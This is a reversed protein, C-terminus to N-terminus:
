VKGAPSAVQTLLMGRSMRIESDDDRRFGPGLQGIDTLQTGAKAPIVNTKQKKFERSCQRAVGYSTTLTAFRMQRSMNYDPLM